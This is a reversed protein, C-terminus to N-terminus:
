VRIGPLTGLLPPHNFLANERYIQAVGRDSIVEGFSRFFAVDVTGVTTLACYVKAATALVAILVILLEPKKM